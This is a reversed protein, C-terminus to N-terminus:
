KSMAVRNRGKHKAIYMAQDARAILTELDTTYEDKAAVGISVTLDVEGNSVKIPAEEISIRLREAVQLATERDTEPLLIILEEGGYRGILDVARTSNKCRVAFEQLVQDGIPHGYNDNVQKFHDIDLMMCCFPRNTRYARSFEVRGLEFLSRRNQLGTLSDTLALSQVEQFLRARELSVGIQKAFISMIPLDTRTVRKGWIWLIGLLNDEFILPLRLPETDPGVGLKQLIELIGEWRTNAFLMQIEVAPNSLVTPYRLNDLNLKDRSFTYEILPHGLGNEVMELFKPDMSTYNVIFLGREKDYVAMICTLDIKSLEVGLNRIIDDINFVKEIHTTIQALTYILENSHALQGLWQREAATARLQEIATALQGALTGLLIEDDVSFADARTNETNIVGLIRDKLKIPVCLEASTEQDVSLYNQIGHVNGIRIPQGTQAVQGSIGQGLPIETPFRDRTSGFRYSPHPHLSGKAEDMLLVGFNDPFLNKGIIETVGEILQDITEVQTSLLAVEHLVTLQKIRKQADELMQAKTVVLAIQQAATETHMIEDEDFHHLSNYGLYLAAIKKGQIILPVGLMSRSPFVSAVKPNIHASSRLDPISLPHGFEMVAATLTREGPEFRLTPYIESMSGYAIVPTTIKNEDDWYAFFGDDAKFLVTIRKVLIKLVSELNYAELTITTISNLSELFGIYKQREEELKTLKVLAEHREGLARTLAMHENEQQIQAQARGSSILFVTMLIISLLPIEVLEDSQTQGTLVARLVMVTTLTVWFSAQLAFTRFKWFFAGIALVVFIIHFFFM